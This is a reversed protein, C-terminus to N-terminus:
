SLSRKFFTKVQEWAQKASKERYNNPNTDNFFAHPSDPYIRMELDKKYTVAADVLDKLGANIREDLSGYIGLIPGNVNKIKDAPSPNEGYFIVCANTSGTCALNISMGGGFCFGMSGIKDVSVNGSAKLFEVAKVLEKTLEDKPLSFLKVMLESIVNRDDEALKTLEHKVYEMDRQKEAPISLFFKMTKRINEVTMSEPVFASSFLDPALVVYGERCVRESVDKIHTDLGWIEHILIVAPRNGAAEPTCLYADIQNSVGPYKIMEGM